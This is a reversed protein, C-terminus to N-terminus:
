FYKLEVIAKIAAVIHTPNFFIKVSTSPRASLVKTKNKRLYGNRTCTFNGGKGHKPCRLLGREHCKIYLFHFSNVSTTSLPKFFIPIVTELGSKAAIQMIKPIITITTGSIRPKTTPM